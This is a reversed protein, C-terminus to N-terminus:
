RESRRGRLSLGILGLGAFMLAVTSPEPVVSVSVADLSGGVSDSTGGAAFALVDHGTGSVTYSYLNWVNDAHGTGDLAATGLLAGNWYVSIPNTSAPLGARASYEFSLTYLSGAVTTLSQSMASNATSDLEVFNHGEFATGAVDNRVEIGPGSTTTWGPISAYVSWSNSAQAVSEFGGDFVINQAHASALTALLAAATIIKKM